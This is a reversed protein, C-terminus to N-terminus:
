SRAELQPDNDRPRWVTSEKREGYLGRGARPPHPLDRHRRRGTRHPHPFRDREGTDYLRDVLRGLTSRILDNPLKARNEVWDTEMVGAQANDTTLAFGREQWFDRVAPYVAEPAAEAVLWRQPGQKEVRVKGAVSPAV